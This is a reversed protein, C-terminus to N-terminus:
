CKKEYSIDNKYLIPEMTLGSLRDLTWSKSTSLIEINFKSSLFNLSGFIENWKSFIQNEILFPVISPCKKFMPFGKNM